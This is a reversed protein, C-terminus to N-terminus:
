DVIYITFDDIQDFTVLDDYEQQTLRRISNVPLTDNRNNQIASGVSTGGDNTSEGFSCTTILGGINVDILIENQNRRIAYMNRPLADDAEEGATNGGDSFSTDKSRLSIGVNNSGCRITSGRTTDNTWKGFEAVNSPATIYSGIAIADDGTAKNNRGFVITKEAAAVNSTGFLLSDQASVGIENSLGYTLANLSRPTNINSRGFNLDEAETFQLNLFNITTTLSRVDNLLKSIQQPFDSSAVKHITNDLKKIYLHGDSYNIAIEGYSLSNQAPVAGVIESKTHIIKSYAM